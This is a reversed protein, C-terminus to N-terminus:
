DGEDVGERRRGLCAELLVLTPGGAAGQQRTLEGAAARGEPQRGKDVIHHSRGHPPEFGGAGAM